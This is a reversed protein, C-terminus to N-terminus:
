GHDPKAMVMTQHLHVITGLPPGHRAARAVVNLADGLAKCVLAQVCRHLQHLAIFLANTHDCRTMSLAKIAHDEGRMCRLSKRQQAIGRWLLALHQALESRLRVDRHQM